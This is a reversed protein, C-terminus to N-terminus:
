ERNLIRAFIGRLHLRTLRARVSRLDQQDREAAAVQDRLGLIEDRARLAETEAAVVQAEARALHDRLSRVEERLADLDDPKETEDMTKGQMGRMRVGPPQAHLPLLRHFPPQEAPRAPAPAVPLAAAALNM